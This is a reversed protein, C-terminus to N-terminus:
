ATKTVQGPATWWLGGLLLMSAIGVFSMIQMAQASSFMGFLQGALYHGFISSGIFISLVGTARGRLEPPSLVHVLAYQSASFGAACVGMLMLAPIATAVHLHLSLGLMLTLLLLTGAFYTRFLTRESAFFGVLLAGITGGIGEWASMMGVLAPSLLFDKQSIVPVMTTFPFCFLNYVLTVGMIIAFRRNFFLEKPFGFSARPAGAAPAAKPAEVDSGRVAAACAFCALYSAAILAYIGAIGLFQYAAGGILPGMARTAYMTSNDFGLARAVNEHGAADVLLRRRVPMDVTWFAGSVVTAAAVAAYGAQGTATLVTMALTTTFVIGAAMMLLRRRDMRDSLIGIPLGLLVYPLMRLVALLAVLPPSHTLEYAFIGLAIFELWRSLGTLAGATWLRAYDPRAFLSNPSVLRM